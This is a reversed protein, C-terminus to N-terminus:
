DGTREITRYKTGLSNCIDEYGGGSVVRLDPPCVLCKSKFCYPADDGCWVDEDVKYGEYSSWDYDGDVSGECSATHMGEGDEPMPCGLTCSKYLETNANEGNEVCNGSECPSNPQCDDRVVWSGDECIVRRWYDFESDCVNEESDCSDPLLCGSSDDCYYPYLCTSDLYAQQWENCLYYNNDVCFPSTCNEEEEVDEEEESDEDGDMDIEIEADGDVSTDADGDAVEDGDVSSDGDVTSIRCEANGDETLDYCEGSCSVQQCDCKSVCGPYEGVTATCYMLMGNECKQGSIGKEGNLFCKADAVQSECEGDNTDSSGDNCSVVLFFCIVGLLFASTVIFKNKLM